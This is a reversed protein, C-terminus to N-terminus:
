IVDIIDCTVGYHKAIAKILSQDSHYEDNNVIAQDEYLERDYEDFLMIHEVRCIGLMQEPYEISLEIRGIKGLSEWIGSDNLILVEGEEFIIEDTRVNYEEVRTM